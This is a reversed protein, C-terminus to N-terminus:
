LDGKSAKERMTDRWYKTYTANVEFQELSCVMYESLVHNPANSPKDKNRKNLLVTIQDILIQRQM